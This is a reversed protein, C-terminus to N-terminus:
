KQLAKKLYHQFEKSLSVDDKQNRSHIQIQSDFINSVPLQVTSILQYIYGNDVANHVDVVEKGHVPAIIGWNIIISYCQSMGSMLYLSSACIYQKACGETNEWIKSM